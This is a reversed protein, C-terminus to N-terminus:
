KKRETIRVVRGFNGPPNQTGVVAWMFPVGPCSPTDSADMDGCYIIADVKLEVAKNIAPSYATGGSGYRKHPKKPDFDYVAAVGSDADIVVIEIGMKHIEAVEAFFQTFSDDSVSGSSDLCVAIKLMPKKRRGPQVVGYRRNRRNRTKEFDYRLASTAFQRMERQWNVSAKNMDAIERLLHASMNGVGTAAQAKNAADRVLGEAIEKNETSEGWTSHDDVPDGFGEGSGSKNPNEKAAQILKEYHVEWPDAIDLVHKSNMKKLEENLRKITVSGPLEDTLTKKNENINADMAINACKHRGQANKSTDIYDKSRMIHKFVIHEIEHELLEMKGRVSRSNWFTPNIYLNLKDTISVGASEMPRGSIWNTWQIHMNMLFHAYFTKPGNKGEGKSLLLTTVIGFSDKAEKLEQPCIPIPGAKKPAEEIEPLAIANNENM